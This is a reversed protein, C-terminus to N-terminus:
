DKKIEVCIIRDETLDGSVPGSFTNSSKEHSLAAIQYISIATEANPANFSLKDYGGPPLGFNGNQDARALGCNYKKMNFSDASDPVESSGLAPLALSLM